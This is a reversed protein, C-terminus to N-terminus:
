YSWKLGLYLNNNRSFQSWYTTDKTGTFINAGADLKWADTLKYSLSPRLYIDKASVNYFTFLSARWKQQQFMKEIRLTLMHLTQNPQNSLPLLNSILEDYQTTREQYYQLSSKWDNKFDKAYALLWRLQGNNINPDSGKSDESIYLGTEFSTIGGLAAGEISFGITTLKPSIYANTNTDIGGPSKWFGHYGYLAIDYGEINRKLRIAYEDEAFWQHPQTYPLPNAEGRFGVLPDYFTLRNGTPFIDPDFRPTYIINLQFGKFYVNTKFADSPAKLYELERGIFFSQFDKPFLDNIFLLDGKGWTLIQRGIKFDLWKSATISANAERIDLRVKETYPDLVLDSKWKWQTHDRYYDGNLQIRAESLNYTKNHNPDDVIKINQRITYFGQYEIGVDELKERLTIQDEDQGYIIFCISLLIFTTIYRM